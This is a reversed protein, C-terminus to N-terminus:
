GEDRRRRYQRQAQARACQPSCYRTGKSRAHRDLTRDIQHVFLGRCTENACTKYTIGATIDNFLQIVLADLLTPRLNKGFGVTPTFPKLLRNLETTFFRRGATGDAPPAIWRTDWTWADIGPRDLKGINQLHYLSTLTRILAAHHRVELLPISTGRVAEAGLVGFRNCFGLVQRENSLDLRRLEHLYVGPAVEFPRLDWLPGWTVRDEQM